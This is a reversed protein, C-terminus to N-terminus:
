PTWACAGEQLRVSELLKLMANRVNHGATGMVLMGKGQGWTVIAFHSTPTQGQMWLVCENNHQRDQWQRQTFYDYVEERSLNALEPYHESFEYLEILPRMGLRKSEPLPPGILRVSNDDIVHSQQFLTPIDAEFGSGISSVKGGGVRSVATSQVPWCVAVILAFLLSYFSEPNNPPQAFCHLISQGYRKIHAFYQIIAKFCM